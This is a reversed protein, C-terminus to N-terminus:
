KAGRAAPKSAQPIRLWALADQENDFIKVFMGRNVAVTEGFRGPDLVPVELVYAFRTGHSVGHDTFDWVAHAAFEGYYFREILEPNGAIGRGDLLVKKVKTRAVAELIEIFTRQAESLSFSGTVRARLFGSEASEASITVMMSMKDGAEEAFWIAIRFM